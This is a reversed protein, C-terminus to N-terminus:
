SGRLRAAQCRERWDSGFRWELAVLTELGVVFGVFVLVLLDIFPDGTALPAVVGLAPVAAPLAPVLAAANALLLAGLLLPPALVAVGVVVKLTTVVAASIYREAVCLAGDLACAWRPIADTM